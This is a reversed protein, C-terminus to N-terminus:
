APMVCNKGKADVCNQYNQMMMHYNNLCQTHKNNESQHCYNRQNNCQSICVRGEASAPAQYDYVIQPGCGAMLLTAVLILFYKTM